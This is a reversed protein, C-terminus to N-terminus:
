SSSPPEVASLGGGQRDVMHPFKRDLGDALALLREEATFHDGTYEAFRLAVLSALDGEDDSGHLEIGTQASRFWRRFQSVSTARGLLM